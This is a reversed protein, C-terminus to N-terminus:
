TRACPSSFAAACRRKSRPRISKATARRPTATASKSCRARCSCRSTSRRHGRGARQQRPQRRPPRASQQQRPRAGAGARRGHQRLVAEASDVIGPLFEATMTKRDLQSSREDGADRDCNEPLFGSCGNYGYDIPLDISLVKVELVDGPEAGEVYVPGTLIHGGPGRREGTVAAVIAKLSQRSRTRRARRRARARAAHEDAAHRRRHHRGVRHAAGAEGRVLLLRVRGHGAHSRPRHTKPAQAALLSRFRLASSPARSRPSRASM